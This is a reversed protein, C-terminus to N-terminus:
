QPSALSFGPRSGSTYLTDRPTIASTEGQAALSRFWGVIKNNNQLLLTWFCGAAVQTYTTGIDHDPIDCQGSTNEGCAVAKGDGRLLVTHRNGCAAQTYSVKEPLEPIKCEGVFNSGFAIASGNSCLLCTHISGCSPM